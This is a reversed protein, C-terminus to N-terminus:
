CVLHDHLFLRVHAPCLRSHTFPNGLALLQAERGIALCQRCGRVMGGGKALKDRRTM